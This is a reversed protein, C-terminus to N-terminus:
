ISLDFGKSKKVIVVGDPNEDDKQSKDKKRNDFYKNKGEEKADFKKNFMDANDSKVIKNHRDDVQKNVQNMVSSNDVFMKNEHQNRMFYMDNARNVSGTIEIPNLAM